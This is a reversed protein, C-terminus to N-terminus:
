QNASGKEKTQILLAKTSTLICIRKGAYEKVASIILESKGYSTPAIVSFQIIKKVKLFIFWHIKNNAEAYRVQYMSSQLPM